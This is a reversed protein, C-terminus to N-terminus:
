RMAVLIACSMVSGLIFMPANILAYRFPRSFLPNIAINVTMAALYGIGVVLGLVLADAQRTIGLANILWATTIINIASCVFPGILFRAEPKQPPRAEIGLSRAYAKGFLATFWLGGLMFHAVSAALVPWWPTQSFLAFSVPM